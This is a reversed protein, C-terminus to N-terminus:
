HNRIVEVVKADARFSRTEVTLGRGPNSALDDQMAEWLGEVTDDPNDTSLEIVIRM